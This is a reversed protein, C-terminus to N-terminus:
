EKGWTKKGKQDESFQQKRWKRYFFTLILMCPGSLIAAAYLLLIYSGTQPSQRTQTGHTTQANELRGTNEPKETSISPSPAPTIYEDEKWVATYERAGISGSPIKVVAETEELGTGM